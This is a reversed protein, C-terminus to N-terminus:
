FRVSAVADFRDNALEEGELEITHRYALQLKTDHMFKPAEPVYLNLGGDISVQEVETPASDLATNPDMWGGRGALEIHDRLWPAPIFCGFQGYAGRTHYDIVAADAHVIESDLYEGQLSFVSVSFQLEAQFANVEVATSDEGTFNYVYGGGVSIYPDRSTGEYPRDRTGLPTVNLRLAYLFRDNVNELRNRGEGNFMGASFTARVKQAIPLRTEVSAGIDRGFSAADVIPANQALQRRTDAALYELSYPVKFQGVNLSVVPSPTFNVFADTLSPEPQLDVEIRARLRYTESGAELGMRAALWFGDTSSPLAPDDDRWTFGPRLWGMPTVTFGPDAAFALPLLLLM